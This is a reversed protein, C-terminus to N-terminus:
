LTKIGNEYPPFGFRHSQCNCFTPDALPANIRGYAQEEKNTPELDNPKLSKSFARSRRTHGSLIEWAMIVTSYQQLGFTSAWVVVLSWLVYSRAVQLRQIMLPYARCHSTSSSFSLVSVNEQLCLKHFTTQPVVVSTEPM